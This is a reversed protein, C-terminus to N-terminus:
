SIICHYLPIQHLIIRQNNLPNNQKLSQESKDIQTFAPIRMKSSYMQITIAANYLNELIKTDFEM